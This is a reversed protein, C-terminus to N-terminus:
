QQIEPRNFGLWRDHQETRLFVEHHEDLDTLAADGGPKLTRAMEAMAEQPSDVHHLSMNAFAYDVCEDAIPFQDAKGAQSDVKEVDGFKERLM